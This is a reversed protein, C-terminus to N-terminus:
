IIPSRCSTTHSILGIRSSCSRGCTICIFRQQGVAQATTSVLETREKRRARKEQWRIIRGKESAAVVRRITSRWSVRDLAATELNSADFNGAKLDRKCVDKFRFAPHGTPRTGSALEGFLLDKPIRGDDMRSVHGLWRLRRTTLIAFMSSMGAKALIDVNTVRDQWTLGLLRRICRLHFANLRREQHSYLAWSESGNLLTGLVVAQYVNM